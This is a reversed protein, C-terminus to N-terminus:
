IYILFLILNITLHFLIYHNKFSEEFKTIITNKLITRNDKRCYIYGINTIREFIEEDDIVYMLKTHFRYIGKGYDRGVVINIRDFNNVDEKFSDIM